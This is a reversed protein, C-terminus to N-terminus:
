TWRGRPTPRRQQRPPRRAPAPPPRRALTAITRSHLRGGVASTERLPHEVANVRVAVRLRNHDPDLPLLAPDPGDAASHIRVPPLRLPRPGLIEHELAVLQATRQLLAVFRELVVERDRLPGPVCPADPGERPGPQPLRDLLPEKAARPAAR